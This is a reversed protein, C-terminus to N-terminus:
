GRTFDWAASVEALGGHGNGEPGRRGTAPSPLGRGPAPPRPAPPTPAAPGRAWGAEEGEAVRFFAMLQQLREAQATLEEATSALEEAASANHQTLQDM